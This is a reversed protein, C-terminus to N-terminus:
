DTLAQEMWIDLGIDKPLKAASKVPSESFTFGRDKNFAFIHQGPYKKSDDGVRARMDYWGNFKHLKRKNCEPSRCEAHQYSAHDGTILNDTWGRVRGLYKTPDPQIHDSKKVVKEPSDQPWPVGIWRDVVKVVELQSEEAWRLARRATGRHQGNRKLIGRLPVEASKVPIAFPVPQCNVDHYRAARPAQPTLPRPTSTAQAVMTPVIYSFSSGTMVSSETSAQRSPNSLKEVVPPVQRARHAILPQRAAAQKESSAGGTPRTAHRQRVTAWTERKNGPRSAESTHSAAAALRERRAQLRNMVSRAESTSPAATPMVQQHFPRSQVKPSSSSSTQLAPRNRIRTERSQRAAERAISKDLVVRLRLM